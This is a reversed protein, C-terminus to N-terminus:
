EALLKETSGYNGDHFIFKDSSLGTRNLLYCLNARLCDRSSGCKLMDSVFSNFPCAKCDLSVFHFAKVNPIKQPINLWELQSHSFVTVGLEFAKVSPLMPTLFNSPPLLITSWKSTFDINLKLHFLQTLEALATFVQAVLLDRFRLSLSTLNPFSACVRPLDLMRNYIPYYSLRTISERLPQSLKLLFALSSTGNTINVKLSNNANFYLQLYKELVTFDQDFPLTIIIEELKGSLVPLMLQDYIRLGNLTLSKLSPLSSIVAMLRKDELVPSSWSSFVKLKTLNRRWGNVEKLLVMLHGEDTLSNGIFTLETISPFVYIILQVNNADLKLSAFKLCNWKTLHHFPLFNSDEFDDKELLKVSPVNAISNCNIVDEFDERLDGIAITLSSVKKNAERVRAMWSRCVKACSIRDALGLYKFIPLLCLDPFERQQQIMLKSISM